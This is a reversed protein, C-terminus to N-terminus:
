TRPSSTRGPGARPSRPPWWCGSRPSPRWCRGELGDGYAAAEVLGAVSFHHMTTAVALSPCRAGVARQVRVAQLATAGAGSNAAPVLLGPGGAERFAAIAPSPSRELEALPYRALARDLGPMLAELEARERHLFNVHQDKPSPRSLESM